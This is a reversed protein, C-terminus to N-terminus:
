AAEPGEDPYDGCWERWAERLAEHAEPCARARYIYGRVQDFWVVHRPFTGDETADRALDGIADERDCQRALYQNFTM